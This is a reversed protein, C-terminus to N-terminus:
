SSAKPEPPSIKTKLSYSATDVEGVSFVSIVLDGSEPWAGHWSNYEMNVEDIGDITFWARQSPSSISIDIQDGMAANLHYVDVQGSSIRGSVEANLEKIRQRYPRTRELKQLRKAERACKLILNPDAPSNLPNIPEWVGESWEASAYPSENAYATIVTTELKDSTWESYVLRGGEFFVNYWEDGNHAVTKYLEENVFYNMLEIYDNKISGYLMYSPANEAEDIWNQAQNVWLETPILMEAESVLQESDSNLEMDCGGFLTTFSLILWFNVRSYKISVCM